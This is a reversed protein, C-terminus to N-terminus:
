GGRYKLYGELCFDKGLRRVKVRELDMAEAPDDVGFGGVPGPAESGGIIKPAIFWAAKDVIGAELASAHVSAGGEILVSTIERTGLFKMLEMLDVRPGENVVVVEAGAERLVELREIPAEKTV